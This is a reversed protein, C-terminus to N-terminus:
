KSVLHTRERVLSCGNRGLAATLLPCCQFGIPIRERKRVQGAIRKENGDTFDRTARLRLACDPTIIWKSLPTVKGVLKEGPFLPFPEQAWRIEEHGLRCKYNNNKDLVLKGKADRLVPNAIFCYHDPPVIVMEEPGFTVTENDQRTFTLPGTVLRTMGTTTDLVHIYYLPKLRYIFPENPKSMHVSALSPFSFSEARLNRTRLTLTAGGTLLLKTRAASRQAANFLGGGQAARRVSSKRM